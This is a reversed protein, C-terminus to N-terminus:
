NELATESCVLSLSNWRGNYIIRFPMNFISLDNGDRLVLTFIDTFAIKKVATEDALEQIIM